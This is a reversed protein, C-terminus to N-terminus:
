EPGLKALINYKFRVENTRKKQIYNYSFQKSNMEESYILNSENNLTIFEDYCNSHLLYYENGEFRIKDKSNLVNNKNDEPSIHKINV